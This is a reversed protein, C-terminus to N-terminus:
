DWSLNTEDPDDDDDEAEANIQALLADWDTKSTAGSDNSLYRELDELSRIPTDGLKWNAEKLQTYYAVPDLGHGRVLDAFSKNFAFPNEGHKKANEAKKKGGKSGNEALKECKDKYAIRSSDVKGCFMSYPFQLAKPVDEKEGIDVYRMVAYFLQGMQEDSLTNSCVEADSVFWKFWSLKGKEDTM